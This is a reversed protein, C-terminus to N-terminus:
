YKERIKKRLKNKYYFFSEIFLMKMRNKIGTRYKKFKTVPYNFARMTNRCQSEIILIDEEKLEDKWGTIRSKDLEKGVLAHQSATYSPINFGEEKLMSECYKIGIFDCLIQLQSSSENILDEFRVLCIRNSYLKQFAFFLVVYDNWIDSLKMASNAGWDLNRVSAFVARPDRIIFIFKSEPFFDNLIDFYKLSSPTHDIRIFEISGPNLDQNKFYELTKEIVVNFNSYRILEPLLPIKNAEIGWQKFRYNNNLYDIYDLRTVKSSEKSLYKYVFDIFFDSEPSAKCERNSGILNALMTTGSRPCGTIFVHKM